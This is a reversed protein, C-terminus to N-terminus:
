KVLEKKLINKFRTASIYHDALVEGDHILTFTGFGSPANQAEKPTKLKTVNLVIENEMATHSLDKVSKEHWPCQDAYLLHWGEYQDQTKEWNVFKPDPATKKLKKVLLDFRGM